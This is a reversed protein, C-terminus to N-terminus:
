ANWADVSPTVQRKTLYKTRPPRGSGSSPKSAWDGVPSLQETVKSWTANVASRRSLRRSPVYSGMSRRAPLGDTVRRSGIPGVCRRAKTTDPPVSNAAPSKWDVRPGANGSRARVELSFRARRLESQTTRAAGSQRRPPPRSGSSSSRGPRSPTPEALFVLAPRHLLTRAVALKQKMGRSWAGVIERRREWLDLGTLLERVRAQREVSSLRWVRAYFDLNDQATMREYLGPHELLAGCRERIAGADTRTDHGLV